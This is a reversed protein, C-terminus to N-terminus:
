AVGGGGIGVAGGLWPVCNPSGVLGQRTSDRAELANSVYMVSTISGGHSGALWLEGFHSSSM